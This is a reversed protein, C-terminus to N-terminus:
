PQRRMPRAFRDANRVSLVGRVARAGVVVGVNRVKPRSYLRDRDLSRVIFFERTETPLTMLTDSFHSFQFSPTTFSLSLAMKLTDCNWPM